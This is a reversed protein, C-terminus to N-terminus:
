GFLDRFNPTQREQSITSAFSAMSTAFRLNKLMRLGFPVIENGRDDITYM